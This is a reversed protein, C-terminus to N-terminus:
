KQMIKNGWLLGSFSSDDNKILSSQDQLDEWIDIRFFAANSYGFIQFAAVTSQFIQDNQWM